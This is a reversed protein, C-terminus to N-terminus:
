KLADCIALLIVKSSYTAGAISDVIVSQNEIVDDLIDVAGGGQGNDHKILEISTIEHNVVTVSVKVKIVTTNYEGIYTGDETSSLDIETLEIDDLGSLEANVQNFFVVGLTTLLGLIVVFVIGIIWWKRM